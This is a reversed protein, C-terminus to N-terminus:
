RDVTGTLSQLGAGLTSLFSGILIVWETPWALKAVVLGGNISEGFRCATAAYNYYYFLWIYCCEKKIILHSYINLLFTWILSSTKFLSWEKKVANWIAIVFTSAALTIKKNCVKHNKLCMFSRKRCYILARLFDETLILLSWNFSLLMWFCQINANSPLNSFKNQKFICVHQLM